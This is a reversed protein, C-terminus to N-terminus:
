DEKKVIEEGCTCIEPKGFLRRFFNAFANWFSKWGSVKECTHEDKPMQENCVDCADDENADTHGLAAIDEKEYHTCNDCDRRQMGTETCTPAKLQVWASFVHGTTPIVTDEVLVINCDACRTTGTRGDNTCTVAVAGEVTTNTHACAALQQGCKDCLSDQNVDTHGLAAVSKTEYHDCNNCDRRESGAATCTPTTAQAWEGFSHGGATIVTGEELVTNCQSCIKNGTFGNTTCSVAIAGVVTTNTHQCAAPPDVPQGQSDGAYVTISFARSQKALNTYTISDAPANLVITIIGGNNTVTADTRTLWSSVYKDELGTCDIEIKTMGPYSITVNSGQYFRVPNGYDAVNSSASAKDNTVTLGNYTWVQKTDSFETRNTKNADFTLTVQTSTGGAPQAAGCDGCIGNTYSHGKAATNAGIYSHACLTCVFTTFGGATCTPATVTQNYQHQCAAPPTVPNDSPNDQSGDDIVYFRALYDSDTLKSSKLINLSTYTGYNGIYCVDGSVTTSLTNKAADWTYVTSATSAISFNRYDGSAVVNIYQKQGSSNQFSLYYGGTTQEVYVDVGNGYSTDTAGYYNNIITGSFYHEAASSTSYMGLKYATGPTVSTVYTPLAPEGEGCVTCTGNTYSHGTAPISVKKTYTCGATQCTYLTYGKETCTPATTVGADFNNHDCKGSAGSAEGSPTAWDDPIEEDFLIFALEPYDVFVNRTGTISEVADNRGLEWTDVPDEEMWALLVDVSEMVGGTGWAKNINGWRVYVYLFIRAVDGHLNYKGNSESNPDYYGSSQGYATNGRSSNENTSTPRIMMIDDEDSGELGKSNPWTHEKNWDGEGWNPGIANGSYFSSIKGGGNQCDTYKLLNNNESYGNTYSHNSKMLDQLERYLDSNPVDSRNSAGSYSSLEDYSTNNDEYFNEANPSLFTATTGRTGWNYIYKGNYTYSFDDASAGLSLAPVLALLMVLVMLMSLSRKMTQIM